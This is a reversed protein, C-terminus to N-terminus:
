KIKESQYRKRVADINKASTAKGRKKLWESIIEDSEDTFPGWTWDADLSDYLANAGEEEIRNNFWGTHDVKPEELIKQQYEVLINSYTDWSETDFKDKGTIVTGFDGRNYMAKLQAKGRVAASTTTSKSGKGSAMTSLVTNYQPGTLGGGNPNIDKAVDEPTYKDPELTVKELWNAYIDNTDKSMKEKNKKEGQNFYKTKWLADNEPSLGASEIEDITLTNSGLAEVGFDSVWKIDNESQAKKDAGKQLRIETQVNKVRKLTQDGLTGGIDRAAKRQAADGSVTQLINAAKEQSLDITESAEISKHYSTYKDVGIVDQHQDLIKKAIKYQKANIYQVAVGSWLPGLNNKLEVETIADDWGARLKEKAVNKVIDAASGNVVGTDAWNSHANQVRLINTSKYTDSAYKDSENLKHRMVGANFQVKAKGYYSNWSRRQADNKLGSSIGESVGNLKTKYDKVIDQDVANKGNIQSYETELDLTKQLYQNKADDVAVDDMRAKERMAFKYAEDGINQLADGISTDAGPATFNTQRVYGAPGGPSPSKRNILSPNPLKPM